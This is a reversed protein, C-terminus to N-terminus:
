PQGRDDNRNSDTGGHRDDGGDNDTPLPTPRVAANGIHSESGTGAQEDPHEASPQAPLQASASQADAAIAADSPASDPLAAKTGGRTAEAEIRLEVSDGIVSPWASIGFAKRSITASASFGATRRFPPLPHRKLQNFTLRLEADQSVGHLTMAGHVVAHTADIPEVRTSVFTAVPYVAADLLNDALAATNWKGDGLDVRTLPVSVEVRATSLDDPDFFVTGTSGSVTGLANSFGAHSIAFMVRTHVPDLQYSVVAARAPAQLVLVTALLLSTSSAHRALPHLRRATLPRFM